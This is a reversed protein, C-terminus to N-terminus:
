DDEKSDIRFGKSKALKLLQLRYWVNWGFSAIALVVGVLAAVENLSLGGLLSALSGAYAVKEKMYNGIQNQLEVLISM